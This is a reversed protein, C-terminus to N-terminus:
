YGVKIFYNEAKPTVNGNSNDDRNLEAKVIVKKIPNEQSELSSWEFKWEESIPSILDNEETGPSSNPVYSYLLPDTNPNFNTVIQYYPSGGLVEKVAFTRHDNKLTNYKLFPYSVQTMPEKLATLIDFYKGGQVFIFDSEIDKYAIIQNILADPYEDPNKSKVIFQVWGEISPWESSNTLKILGVKPISVLFEEGTETDPNLSNEISFTTTDSLATKILINNSSLGTGVRAWLFFQEIEEIINNYKYDVYIDSGAEIGGTSVRQITGNISDLIYDIGQSYIQGPIIGYTSKAKVSAKLIKEGVHRYKITISTYPLEGSLLSFFIQQGTITEIFRIINTDITYVLTVSIWGAGEQDSILDEHIGTIKGTPYGDENLELMYDIGDVYQKTGDSRKLIVSSVGEYKILKTQTDYTRPGGSSSAQGIEFTFAKQALTEEINLTASYIAYNPQTDKEPNVGIAPKVFHGKTPNYLPNKSLIGAYVDEGNVNTVIATINETLVTYLSQTDGKSFPIFNDKVLTPNVAQSNDRLWSKYGRYLSATGFIPKESISKINYLDVNNSTDVVTADGPLTEFDIIQKNIEKLIRIKPPGTDVSHNDPTIPFFEGITDNEYVAAISWGIATNEPIETKTTISIRGISDVDDSFDFPLSQYIASEQRGTSYVSINSLGFLYKFIQNGNEDEEFSDAKSKTLTIHLYDVLRNEFDLSVIKSQDMLEVGDSYTSIDKINVKDVSTRITCKQKKPGHHNLTIRNVFEEYKLRLTFSISLEGDTIAEYQIGWSFSSDKAINGFVTGAVSGLLTADERSAVLDTASTLNFLHSLDLKFAGQLGMPLSIKGESTNVVGPTSTSSDTKNTSSFDEFQVFFNEDAGSTSFLLADLTYKLRNLESSHVAHFLSSHLIRKVNAKTIEDMEEFLLELDMHIKEISKNYLVTDFVQNRGQPKFKYLPANNDSIDPLDQGGRQIVDNQSPIFGLKLLELLFKNYIKQYQRVNIM